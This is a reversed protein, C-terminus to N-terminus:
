LTGLENGRDETPIGDAVSRRRRSLWLVVSAHSATSIPEAFEIPPIIFDSTSTMVSSHRLAQARRPAKGITLARANACSLM